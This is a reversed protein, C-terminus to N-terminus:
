RLDIPAIDVQTAAVQYPLGAKSLLEIGPTPEYYNGTAPPVNAAAPLPYPNWLGGGAAHATYAKYAGTGDVYGGGLKAAYMFTFSLTGSGGAPISRVLRVAKPLPTTGNNPRDNLNNSYFVTGSNSDSVTVEAFTGYDNIAHLADRDPFVMWIDQNGTGVNQYDVRVTQPEGPMLNAFNLVMNSTNVRVKGVTGDIKGGDKVESFYAGTAGSAVAVLGAILVLALALGIIKFKLM